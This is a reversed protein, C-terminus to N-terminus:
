ATPGGDAMVGDVARTLDDIGFPKALSARFGYERYAAIAPDNSYGSMVIARVGPDIARLEALVERGSMGDPMTLDLLVCRFPSEGANAARYAEVAERGDRATVASYGLRELMMRGMARISEEDDVLLIAGHAGPTALVPAHDSAGHEAADTAPLLIVFTTGVGARSSVTISGHHKHVISHAIALGLGNGATKTTYYPDFIRALDRRHIGPGTDAIAIRVYPGAHRERRRGAAADENAITIDIRGRDAMAQRANLIINQLVQGIQGPDAIVNRVDPAINFVCEIRSGGLVLHATETAMDQVPVSRTVPEGGRSFTLLQRTLDRARFSAQEAQDLAHAARGAGADLRALSINGIVATLLNNFDHAIGGAFLGLSEIRQAKEIDRTQDIFRLVVGVMCLVIMITIGVSFYSISERAPFPGDVGRYIYFYDVFASTIATVSGALPLSIYRYNRHWLLDFVFMVLAYGMLAAIVIDRLRYVPGTRGRVADHSLRHLSEMGGSTQSIFFDPMAFAVVVIAAVIALSAYSVVRNASRWAHSLDTLGSAVYPVGFIFFAAALAQMRHMRRGLLPDNALHCLAVGLEGAVFVFGFLGMLAVGAHLPSRTFHYIIGYILVGVLLTGACAGLFALSVASIHNGALM